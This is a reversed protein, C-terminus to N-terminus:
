KDKKLISAKIKVDKIVIPTLPVDNHHNFAGTPQKAIADVISMGKNVRGFVAYGASNQSRNLFDNDELNIFFQSSASDPQNTRAMALTGRQNKLQNYSENKIAPQTVKEVMETNMGGGQIMFGPIVRHFITEKYFGSKVYEKFNETTIPAQDDFLEIEIVGKSTQMEILTNDAFTSASMLLLAISLYTKNLM